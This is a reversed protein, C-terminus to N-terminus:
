ADDAPDGLFDDIAMQDRMQILRAKLLVAQEQRVKVERTLEEHATDVLATIDKNSKGSLKAVIVATLAKKARISNPEDAWLDLAKLLIDFDDRTLM